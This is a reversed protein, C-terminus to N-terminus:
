YVIFFLLCISSNIYRTSSQNAAAIAHSKNKLYLDNSICNEVLPHYLGQIEIEKSQSKFEPKCYYPLESRLQLISMSVDIDGIFKFISFIDKRKVQIEEIIKHFFIVESLTLVKLLELFFWIFSGFESDKLSDTNLYSITSSLSEVNKINTLIQESQGPAHQQLGRGSKTLKNLRYFIELFNGIRNKHWYHILLNVFFLPILALLFPRNMISLGVFLVALLQLCKVLWLYPMKNPLEGFILFPFYYDNFTNLKTLLVQSQKKENENNKYHLIQKELYNFSHDSCDLHHMKDYLYQQGISSNTKDVFKFFSQFDVDEAVQPTVLFDSKEEPKLSLYQEILNFNFTKDEV